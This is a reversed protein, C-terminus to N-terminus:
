DQNPDFNYWGDIVGIDHRILKEGESRIKRTVHNHLGRPDDQLDYFYNKQNVADTIFLSKGNNQLIGYVPAYSSAILYYPQRAATQEERTRTFLPRGFLEGHTTPEHGLLYYLSPVIDMPFAIQQTDWVLKDRMRQPLHVILPVRMVEPFLYDSHGYRGFEGYADGHDSTLVIVSNDYLGRDKLFKIFDGFAPDMRRLESASMQARTGNQRARELTVTHVNQPQTYAFIPKSSDARTGIKAELEKLTAVFDLDNWIKTNKDLETISPSPHLIARLIPDLTIYSEYGETDILKQLNNMPYFPDVYQAHLQMAGVWIAPESLATGAYRTFANQLVISDQAFKGIEPTFNVSSNYPSLYDQRLSDIVFIFINPRDCHCPKLDSVLRMDAPAMRQPINTNQKLFHYFGSYDDDKVSRALISNVTRFGIDAGAYNDLVDSWQSSEEAQSYQTKEYMGFATFAGFLAVLMSIRVTRTRFDAGSWWVLTLVGVWVLLVALKQLVFDWDTPGLKAPIAYAVAFLASGGLSWLWAHAKNQSIRGEDRSSILKRVTPISISVFLILTASVMAAYITAMWGQFSITPLVLNRLVQVCLAFAFLRTFVFYTRPKGPLRRFLLIVAAWITFIVLHFVLSTGFGSLWIKVPLLSQSLVARLLASGAFAVAVLVAAVIATNLSLKRNEGTNGWIDNGEVGTWDIAILWLVPFLVYMSWLYTPFDPVLGPLAPHIMLYLGFSGNVILFAAASIRTKKVRLAPLLTPAVASLLGGFLYPHIRVFVPLWTLLPNHIFSFYTFPTYLLILYISTFLLFATFLFRVGLFFFLPVIKKERTPGSSGRSAGQSGETIIQCQPAAM